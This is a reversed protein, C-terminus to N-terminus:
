DANVFIGRNFTAQIHITFAVDDDTVQINQTCSVTTLGNVGNRCPCRVVDPKVMQIDGISRIANQIQRDATIM